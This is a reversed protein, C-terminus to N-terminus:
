EPVPPLKSMVLLGTKIRDERPLAMARDGVEKRRGRGAAGVATVASLALFVSSSLSQDAAGAVIACFLSLIGLKVLGRTRKADM